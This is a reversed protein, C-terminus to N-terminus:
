FPIDDLNVASKAPAAFVPQSEAKSAIFKSIDNVNEGDRDKKIKVDVVLTKDVLHELEDKSKLGGLGLAKLFKAFDSKGIKEAMENNNKINFNYFLKRGACSDDLVDFMTSILWGTKARTEKLECREIMVRYKGRPLCSYDEQVEVESSDFFM